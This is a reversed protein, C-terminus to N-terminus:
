MKVIYGESVTVKCEVNSGNLKGPIWKYNDKYYEIIYRDYEKNVGKVMEYGYTEGNPKIWFSIVYSINTQGNSLQYLKGDDMNKRNEIRTREGGVLMPPRELRHEIIGSDSKITYVYNDNFKLPFILSDNTHDYQQELVGKMYYSWVGVMSDNVYYGSKVLRTPSKRDYDPDITGVNTFYKWEGNKKGNKYSGISGVYKGVIYTKWTSDKVGMNYFGSEELTNIINYRKYEGHKISNDSKLVYYKEKITIGDVVSKKKVRKLTVDQGFALISAALILLTFLYKM